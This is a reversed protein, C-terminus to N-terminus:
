SQNQLLLGYLTQEPLCQLEIGDEFVLPASKFVHVCTKSLRWVSHCNLSFHSGNLCLLLFALLSSFSYLSFCALPPSCTLPVFFVSPFCCLWSARLPGATKWRKMRQKKHKAHGECRKRTRGMQQTALSSWNRFAFFVPIKWLLRTSMRCAVHLDGWATWTAHSCGRGKPAWTTLSVFTDPIRHVAFWNTHFESSEFTLM